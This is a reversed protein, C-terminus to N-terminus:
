ARHMDWPTKGAPLPPRRTISEESEGAALRAIMEEPDFIIGIFNEQYAGGAFFADLDAASRFVDYQLEINHGDPDKYYLSITPGHNICWYPLIGGDRLRRYTGFLAELSRYTFAVHELGTMGPPPHSLNPMGILGLRHHEDDYTLFCVMTNQFAVRAGLVTLYWDRSAALDAVRVVVHALKAPSEVATQTPRSPERTNM